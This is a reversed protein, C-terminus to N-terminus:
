ENFINEWKDSIVTPSFQALVYDKGSRALKRRQDSFKILNRLKNEFEKLNNLEVLIGYEGDKTMERPGCPSAYSIVACGFSMAELLANPFGEYKSTMCFIEARKFGTSIDKRAGMLEIKNEVQLEQILTQLQEKREGDGYIKLKWGPANINAFALIVHEIQKEDALRGVTIIEKTSTEIDVNDIEDSIQLAFNPIANGIVCLRSKYTCRFDSVLKAYLENTQVIVKKARPYLLSRLFKWYWSIKIIYPDSRESVIVRKATFLTSLIAMINVNTIFSILIDFRQTKILTRLRHVRMIYNARAQVLDALYIINVREDISYFSLKGGGSFTPVLTVNFGKASWFNALTVAAREAGGMNLSSTLILVKKSM